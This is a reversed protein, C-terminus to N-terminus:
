HQAHTNIQDWWPPLLFKAMRTWHLWTAFCVAASDAEEEQNWQRIMKRLVKTRREETDREEM